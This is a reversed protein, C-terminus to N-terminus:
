LEAELLILVKVGTWLVAVGALLWRWGPTGRSARFRKSRNTGSSFWRGNARIWRDSEQRIVKVSEM